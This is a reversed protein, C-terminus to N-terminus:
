NVLCKPLGTAAAEARSHTSVTLSVLGNIYELAAAEARSHTSVYGAEAYRRKIM